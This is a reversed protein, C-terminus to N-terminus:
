VYGAFCRKITEMDKLLTEMQGGAGLGARLPLLNYYNETIIWGEFGREKLIDMQRFFDTNGQGLMRNGPADTGDKVHLVNDMYPYLGRLQEPQDMNFNFKFNQTDFHIKLNKEGVAELLKIQERWDLANETLIWIGKEAALKCAYKLTKATNEIHERGTILNKLFNPIMIREIGMAAATDVGIAIQEWAIKGNETDTGHIFEHEMVDNLVLAPFEIGYRERDELYGEMVERQALPYGERFSGLELQIGDLGALYATRAGYAGGGPLGWAVAGLRIKGPKGRMEWEPAKGETRGAGEGTKREEKKEEM